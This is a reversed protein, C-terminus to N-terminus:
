YRGPLYGSFAKKYSVGANNILYDVGGMRNWAEEGLRMAQSGDALDAQLLSARGGQEQIANRVTEAEKKNRNYHIIVEAGETAMMLAIAKGIGRSSGTVLATKNALRM